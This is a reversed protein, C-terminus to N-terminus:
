FSWQLGASVHFLDRLNADGELAADRGLAWSWAAHGTLSLSPTLAYEASARLVGHNLGDHGDAVFGQNIGLTGTATLTLKKTFEWARALSLEIFAGGVNTAYTADAAIQLDWPLGAWSLGTGIENDEEDTSQLWVHTAGAYYELQGQSGSLILSLKTERYSQEPSFGHWLNLALPEWALEFSSVALSDGGLSDRGQSFYRSEWVTHLHGTLADKSDNLELRHDAERDHAPLGSAALFFLLAATDPLTFYRRTM